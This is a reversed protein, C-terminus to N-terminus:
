ILKIFLVLMCLMMYMFSKFVGSDDLSYNLLENFLIVSEYGYLTLILIYNNNLKVIGSILLLYAFYREFLRINKEPIYIITNLRFKSLIPLNIIQLICLSSIIDYVGDIKIITELM